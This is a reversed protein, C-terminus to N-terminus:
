FGLEVLYNLVTWTRDTHVSRMSKTTRFFFFLTRATRLNLHTRCMATILGESCNASADERPPGACSAWEGYAEWIQLGDTM